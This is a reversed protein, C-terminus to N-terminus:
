DQISLLVPKVTVENDAMWGKIGKEVHSVRTFKLKSDLVKSINGTRNGTRCILIFPEDVDVIKKLEALWKILNYNKKKDYFTILHSGKVIGTQQWEEARRVDIVPIGQNMMKKFESNTINKVEAQASLSLALLIINAFIKHMIVDRILVIQLSTLDIGLSANSIGCLLVKVGFGVYLDREEINGKILTYM